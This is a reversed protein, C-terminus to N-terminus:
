YNENKTQLQDWKEQVIQNCISYHFGRRSLYGYMKKRFGTWDLNKVRNIKKEVVKEALHYEDVDELVADIIKRSVGKQRLEAALARKGRPHFAARNEVWQSAFQHDDVLSKERLRELTDEIVDQPIDHKELNLRVEHESRVRYSLYHLARQYAKERADLETLQDIKGQDLETGVKLWPAIVRAIGFGFEGDLYVNLRNPDKKQPKLDTVKFM